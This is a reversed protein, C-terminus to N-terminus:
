AGVPERWMVDVLEKVLKYCVAATMGDTDRSPNYEVLDAGIVPVRIDQLWDILTRVSVGGPERHSLGPAFAPDLVDLDLSIYLPGDVWSPDFNGINHMEFVEVNFRQAQEQQHPTMTRIGVQTLSTVLGTEMIRAFPCAHSFKDDDYEDYLDNHADFHLIHFAGHVEQLSKVIPYSISHDGGLFLCKEDRNVIKSVALGLGEFFHGDLMEIKGLHKSDLVPRISESFPNYADSALEEAIRAPAESTGKLFSSKGDFPIGILRVPSNM